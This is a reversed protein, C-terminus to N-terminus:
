MLDRAAVPARGGADLWTICLPAFMDDEPM